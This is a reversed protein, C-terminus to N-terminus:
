NKLQFENYANNLRDTLQMIISDKQVLQNELDNVRDYVEQHYQPHSSGEKMMEEVIGRLRVCEENYAELESELEATRTNKINKRM